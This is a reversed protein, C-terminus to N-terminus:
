ISYFLKQSKEVSSIFFVNFKINKNEQLFNAFSVIQLSANKKEDFFSTTNGEAPIQTPPENDTSEDELDLKRLGEQSIVQFFISCLLLSLLSYKM